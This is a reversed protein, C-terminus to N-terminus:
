NYGLRLWSKPGPRPRVPGKPWGPLARHPEWFNSAHAGQIAHVAGKTPGIASMKEQKIRKPESKTYNRLYSLHLVVGLSSPSAFSFPAKTASPLSSLSWEFNNQPSIKLCTFTRLSLFESRKVSDFFRAGSEQYLGEFTVRRFWPLITRLLTM